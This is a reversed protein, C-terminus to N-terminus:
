NLYPKKGLDYVPPCVGTTGAHSYCMRYYMMSAIGSGFNAVLGQCQSVLQLSAHFYVGSATAGGSRIYHYNKPNGYLKRDITTNNDNDNNRDNPSPPPLSYINWDPSSKKVVDIQEELWAFDDTAVLLNRVSPRVMMEAKDIVDQLTISGFPISDETCSTTVFLVNLYTYM